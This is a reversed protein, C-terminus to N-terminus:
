FVLTDVTLEREVAALTAVWRPDTPSIFRVLPMLLVSADVRSTGKYQVFRRQEGDWFNNHIDEAIADRTSEMWGFPGSLSRKAGLRITRDFAVWCMLSAM